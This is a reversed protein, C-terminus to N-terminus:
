KRRIRRGEQTPAPMQDGLEKSMQAATGILQAYGANAADLATKMWESVPAAAFPTQRFLDKMTTAGYGNAFSVENQVIKGIETRLENAIETMQRGYTALREFNPHAQGAATALFDQPGASDVFERSLATQDDLMDRAAQM